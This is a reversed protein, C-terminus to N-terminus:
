VIAQISIFCSPLYLWFRTRQLCSQIWYQSVWALAQCHGLSNLLPVWLVLESRHSGHTCQNTWVEANVWSQVSGYIYNGKRVVCQHVDGWCFVRRFVHGREPLCPELVWYLANRLHKTMMRPRGLLSVFLDSPWSSGPIVLAGVWGWSMYM